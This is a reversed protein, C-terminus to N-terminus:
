YPIRRHIDPLDDSALGNFYDSICKENCFLSIEGLPVIGRPGSVAKETTILDEGLDINRNCNECRLKNSTPKTEM